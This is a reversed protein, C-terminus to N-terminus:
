NRKPLVKRRKSLWLTLVMITGAILLIPTNSQVPQQLAEMTASLPNGTLNAFHYASFGALPVGIFNVLDNAAFAMALSFTGILIIPKLININTFSSLLQFIVAFIFFDGILITWAHTHIWMITDPSLFSTGKAGKILIFYTIMSLTLGGWIGGYRKLRKEYDFTFVLRSIFQIISGCVFAIVVSFLIGMIIALAKATNIYKLIEEVSNGASYVKVISIAVSAGLLAFVISVTTSTPLGFTNFLDLLIVNTLIVALFIMMLEPMIFFQPNFIGKRAVEMM